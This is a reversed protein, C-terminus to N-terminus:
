GIIVMFLHIILMCCIMLWYCAIFEIVSNKISRGSVFPDHLEDCLCYADCSIEFDFLIQILIM